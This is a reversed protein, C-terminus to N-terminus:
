VVTATVEASEAGLKGDDTITRTLYYYTGPDLPSDVFIIPDTGSFPLVRRANSFASDFGTTTGRFFLLGWGNGAATVLHQVTISRTGATASLVGMTGSFTTEVEPYAQTPALFNRWRYQCYSVYANFPSISANAARPEWTAQDAPSISAWQQALFRFMSRVGVQGGSQPNAPRVLSRVYNRGKWKSFVMAGALSGSADLCKAPANVKVM